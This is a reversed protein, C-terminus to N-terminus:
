RGDDGELERLVAEVDFTEEQPLQERQDNTLLDRLRDAFREDLDRRAKAAAESEEEAEQYKEWFAEYDGDSSYDWNESIKAEADIAAVWLANASVAEREYHERTSAIADRQDTTLSEIAMIAEHTDAFEGGAYVQPYLEANYAKDWERGRDEGLANAIRRSYRETIAQMEGAIQQMDEQNKAYQEWAAEEDEDEMAEFQQRMSALSLDVLRDTAGAIEKEYELLATAIPDAQDEGVILSVPEDLKQSLLVLDITGDEYSTAMLGAALERQRARKVRQHGAQQREDALAELDGVYREGLKVAREMFRSMVKSVDRMTQAMKEEDEYDYDINEYLDKVIEAANRYEGLYDRYMMLAIDAQDHDFGMLDVYLDASARTISLSMFWAMMEDDEDYDEEQIESIGSNAGVVMAVHAAHAQSPVLGAMLMLVGTVSLTSIRRHM